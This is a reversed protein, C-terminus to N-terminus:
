GGQPYEFNRKENHTVSIDAAEEQNKSRTQMTKLVEANKGHKIWPLM